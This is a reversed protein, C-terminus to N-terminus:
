FIRFRVSIFDQNRRYFIGSYCVFFICSKKYERRRLSYGNLLRRRPRRPWPPLEKTGDSQKKWGSSKKSGKWRIWHRFLVKAVTVRFTHSGQSSLLNVQQPSIAM